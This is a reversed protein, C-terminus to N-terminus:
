VFSSINCQFVTTAKFLFRPVVGGTKEHNLLDVEQAPFMVIIAHTTIIFWMM